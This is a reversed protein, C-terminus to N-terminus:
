DVRKKKISKKKKTKRVVDRGQGIFKSLDKIAADKRHYLGEVETSICRGDAWGMLSELDAEGSKIVPVILNAANEFRRNLKRALLCCAEIEAGAWGETLAILKDRDYGEWDLEALRFHIDLIIGRQVAGPVDFFFTADFRGARTMQPPLTKVDNCTGIFFVDHDNRSLFDLLKGRFRRGLGGDNDGSGGSGAMQDAFEDIFLISPSMAITTELARDLRHDSEGQYKSRVKGMDLKLLRRGTANAICEASITKGTGPVGLLLFGSANFRPNTHRTSLLQMSIDKFHELGGVDDFTIDPRDIVELIGDKKIMQAKVDWIIRTNLKTVPEDEQLKEEVLRRKDKELLDLADEQLLDGNEQKAIEKIRKAEICAADEQTIALSFAGEAEYRTLGSASELLLKKEEPDTPLEDPAIDSAIDWLQAKTPLEHTIVTLQRELEPPIAIIPALVCFTFRGESTKGVTIQDQLHQIFGIESMFQKAHFNQLVILFRDPSDEGKEAYFEDLEHRIQRLSNFLEGPKRFPPNSLRLSPLQMIDTSGTCGNVVDWKLLQWNEEKCLAMLDAIAEDPEQTHVYLGSFGAISYDRVYSNLSM